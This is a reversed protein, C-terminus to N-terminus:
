AIKNSKKLKRRIAFVCLVALLMEGFSGSSTADEVQSIDLITVDLTVTTKRFGDFVTLKIQAQTDNDVLPAILTPTATEQNELTLGTNGIVEWTFSLTDGDPDNSQAADLVLSEGENIRIETTTEVNPAQNLGVSALEIGKVNGDITIDASTWLIDGDLHLHQGSFRFNTHNFDYDELWPNVSEDDLDLRKLSPSDGTTFYLDNKFFAIGNYKPFYQPMDQYKIEPAQPMSEEHIKVQLLLNNRDDVLFLKDHKATVSKIQDRCSEFRHNPIDSLVKVNQNPVDFYYVRCLNGELDWGVFSVGQSFGVLPSFINIRLSSDNYRQQVDGSQYDIALISLSNDSTEEYAFVINEYGVIGYRGLGMPGLQVFTDDTARQLIVGEHDLYSLVFLEDNLIFLSKPVFVTFFPLDATLKMTRTELDISWLRYLSESNDYTIVYLTENFLATEKISNQWPILEEVDEPINLTTLLLTAQMSSKDFQTLKWLANDEGAILHSANDVTFFLYDQNQVIFQPNSGENSDLVPTIREPNLATWPLHWLNNESPTSYEDDGLFTQTGAYFVGFEPINLLAMRDATLGIGQLSETAVDFNFLETARPRGNGEMYYDMTIFLEGGSVQSYIDLISTPIAVVLEVRHSQKDLAWIGREAYPADFGQHDRMFYLHTETELSPGPWFNAKDALPPYRQTVSLLSGDIPDYSLHGAIDSYVFLLDDFLYLPYSNEGLEAALTTIYDLESGESDLALLGLSANEASYIQASAYLNQDKSVLYGVQWNEDSSISTTTESAPDFVWLQSITQPRLGTVYLRGAHEAIDIVGSLGVNNFSEVEVPNHSNQEIRWLQWLTGQRLLFYTAGAIEVTKQFPLGPLLNRLRRTTIDLSWLSNNRHLYVKGNHHFLHSPSLDKIELTSQNLDFWQPMLLNNANSFQSTILLLGAIFNLILKVTKM